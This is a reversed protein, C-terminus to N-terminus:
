GELADRVIDAVVYAIGAVPVGFIMVLWFATAM